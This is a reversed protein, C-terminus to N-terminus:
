SLDNGLDKASLLRLLSTLNPAFWTKYTGDAISEGTVCFGLERRLGSDPLVNVDSNVIGSREYYRGVVVLSRTDYDVVITAVCGPYDMAMRLGPQLEEAAAELQADTLQGTPSAGINVQRLFERKEISDGFEGREQALEILMRALVVPNTSGVFAGDRVEYVDALKLYLDDRWVRRLCMLSTLEDKAAAFPVDTRLTSKAKGAFPFAASLAGLIGALIGRRNM